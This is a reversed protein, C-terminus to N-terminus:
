PWCPYHPIITLVASTDLLALADWLIDLLPPRVPHPLPPLVSLRSYGAPLLQLTLRLFMSHCFPSLVAIQLARFHHLGSGHKGSPLPPLPQWPVLDSRCRPGHCGKLNSLYLLGALGGVTGLLACRFPSTASAAMAPDEVLYPDMVTAALEADSRAQENAAIAADRGRRAAALQANAELVAHNNASRIAREQAAAARQVEDQYLVQLLGLAHLACHSQAPAHRASETQLPRKCRM